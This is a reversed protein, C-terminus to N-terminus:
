YHITTELYEKNKKRKLEDQKTEQGIKKFSYTKNQLIYNINMM